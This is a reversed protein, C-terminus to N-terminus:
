ARTGSVLQSRIEESNEPNTHQQTTLPGRVLGTLYDGWQRLAERREPLCISRDYVGALGSKVGSVHNLIAEAVYPVAFGNERIHTTFSRRLDHLVWPALPAGRREAIRKDLDTKRRGWHVFPGFVFKHGDTIDGLLALAPESLPVIHPRKNKTRRGPLEIQRKGVHVEICELGGIEACRQGTLMLLKVIRGFEDNGAALWIEVLEEESLVRERDQEHLPKIDSTPNTGSIHEQDIAWGCFGSLAALARNASVAGSEKVIEDRRDRVMKRTIKDILEGHLPKWSRELYRTVERRSKERLPKWFENGTERLLLYPGVLEGLTKTKAAEQQAKRAEGVVDKGLRAQALVVAAEKRIGVQAGPVFPGLTKRRQQTGVTYKVFFTTHGSAQKRIGFGPLADDFVQVEKAGEPVQLSRIFQDTIKAMVSEMQPVSFHTRDHQLKSPLALIILPWNV